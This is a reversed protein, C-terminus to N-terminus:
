VDGLVLPVTLTERGTREALFHHNGSPALSVGGERKPKKSNLTGTLIYWHELLRM